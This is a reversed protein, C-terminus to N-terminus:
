APKPLGGTYYALSNMPSVWISPTWSPLHQSSWFSTSCQGSVALSSICSSSITLTSSRGLGREYQVRVSTWARDRMNEMWWNSHFTIINIVTHIHMKVWTDSISPFLIDHVFTFKGAFSLWATGLIFANQLFLLFLTLNTACLKKNFTSVSVM